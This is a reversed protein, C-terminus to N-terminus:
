VGKIVLKSQQIQNFLQLHKEMIFDEEFEPLTYGKIKNEICFKVGESIDGASKYKALYGNKKHSIMDPIGGVDFGVVPTGCSLSELVTTPLNDALSPAVFIDAANYMLVTSYEDGLHGTFKTKFPIEDAIKQNHGSGFILVTLNEFKKDEFLIKLAQLMYDWGKYPSVFSVAGFAIVIEDPNINLIQRATKKDIPKFFNNDLVNPIHFIPKDKTLASQKACHYLWKSPSIFYLNNYKSYLQLKKKFGKASLDNNKNEPFIQCNSCESKYKECSFSHHCGGTITWMDHMFFLLPKGLKALQEINSLNMFGGLVWHIYIFDANKVDEMQSVDTGFVPYSFSGFKKITNRNLYAKVKDDLRKALNIRRSKQKIKNDDNISSRLTIINSDIGNKLFTKHLRLAARGTAETSIQLHVVRTM